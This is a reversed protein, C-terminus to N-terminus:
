PAVELPDTGVETDPKLGMVIAWWRHRHCELMLSVGSNHDKLSLTVATSVDPKDEILWQMADRVLRRNFPFGHVSQSDSWERVYEVEPNGFNDVNTWSSMKTARRDAWLLLEVVPLKARAIPEQKVLANVAQRIKDAACDSESELEVPLCVTAQNGLIVLSRDAYRLLTFSDRLPFDYIDLNM